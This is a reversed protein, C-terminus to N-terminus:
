DKCNYKRYFEERWESFRNDRISQRIEDMVHLYFYINHYTALRPGLMEGAMFIHRLYARSYNNCTYCGCDPDPPRFDKKYIANKIVCKGHSTFLTGNRANRTPMVCDFMDIGLRVAEIIDGPFGVGMLYRPKHHPLLEATLKTLELLDRKPEGVSLGGIAYGPFDMAVLQSVSKKRLDPYVSGQVIGFLVREYGDRSVKPGYESLSREAWHTTRSVAEAATPHDCPYSSCQDLQMMIDAGIALQINVVKEPTLMHSSGDLHSRFEAGRDTIRNLDALSFVQYGGSDTLVPGNWSMFRHIGGAENIVEEGPRLYLHYTNALIMGSGAEALDESSMTKVTAQTGVPMFIPTEVTGHDTEIRGLRAGSSDEKLVEFGFPM